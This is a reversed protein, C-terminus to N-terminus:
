SDAGRNAEGKVLKYGVGRVTKIYEPAKPNKEIKERLHSIHVDVIRTDGAFEYGWVNELLQDRTLVRNANQCLYALLEFERTTLDVPTGNITLEYKTVDIRMNGIQYVDGGASESGSTTRRLVARIRAILERPSFPKTIYDDAGMELGLIRDIEDDRATLMIVPTTIGERRLQQCVEMGSMGPLMLDLVLIDPHKDRVLHLVQNGSEGTVVDFGAQTLNYQVLQRISPEDDVVLVRHM